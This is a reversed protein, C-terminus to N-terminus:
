LFSAKRNEAAYHHPRDCRSFETGTGPYDPSGFLNQIHVELYILKNDKGSFSILGTETSTKNEMANCILSKLYAAENHDYYDYVSKEIMSGPDYNIVKQSTDSIYRIIGDATIIEFVVGSEQILM